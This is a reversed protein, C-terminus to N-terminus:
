YSIGTFARFLFPIVPAVLPFIFFIFVLFLVISYRYMFNRVQYYRAPLFAMLLWHGDLPPVPFLNFIALILNIFVVTSLLEPVLATTFADPLFRILAGFLAAMMINSAPGALAVKAAGFRKDNLNEPVYLVPKAYGFIFPSRILFLFLPLLVSGFLDLHRIPNLTLRGMNKATPDGMANAALGHSVEHIVVSYILVLVQFVVLVFDSM